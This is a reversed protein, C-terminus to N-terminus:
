TYNTSKQPPGFQPDLNPTWIPPGAITGEGQRPGLAVLKWPSFHFGNQYM